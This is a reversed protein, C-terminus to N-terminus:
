AQEVLSSAPARDPAFVDSTLGANINPTQGKGPGPGVRKLPEGTPGYITSDGEGATAEMELKDALKRFGFQRLVAAEGLTAVRPSDYVTDEYLGQRIRTTNEKGAISWYGEKDLLKKDYENMAIQKEQARAVPDIQQFMIRVRTNGHLDAAKLSHEGVELASMRTYAPLNIVLRYLNEVAVTFLGELQKIPGAFKKNAAGSLIQQQGVTSVGTQRYGGLAPTYSGEDTDNDIEAGHQFFWPPLEPPREWWLMDPTGQYYDGQSQRAVDNPDATTGQHVWAAKMMLAHQAVLRQDRLRISEMIPGLIGKALYKPDRRDRRSPMQGFGAFAHSIPQFGPWNRQVFLLVSSEATWMSRWWATWVTFVAIDDYPEMGSPIRWEYDSQKQVMKQQTLLELKYAEISQVHIAIPPRRVQYDMLIETPTPVVFRIPNYGNTAEGWENERKSYDEIREGRGRVPRNDRGTEDWIPGILPTIGYTLLQRGAQKPPHETGYLFSDDLINKTAPEIRNAAAKHLEGRGAPPRHVSPDFALQTDVAHDIANTARSSHYKPRAKVEDAPVGPWVDYEQQYFDDIEAMAAHTDSWMDAYHAVLKVYDQAAASNPKVTPDVPM